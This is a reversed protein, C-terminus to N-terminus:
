NTSQVVLALTCDYKGASSCVISFLSESDRFEKIQVGHSDFAEGKWGNFLKESDTASLSVGIVGKEQWFAQTAPRSTQIAPLGTAIKNFESVLECGHRTGDSGCWLRFAHDSVEFQSLTKDTSPLEDFLMKADNENNITLKYADQGTKSITNKQVSAASLPQSTNSSDTRPKCSVVSLVVLLVFLIRTM